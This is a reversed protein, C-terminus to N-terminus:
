FLTPCDGTGYFLPSDREIRGAMRSVDKLPQLMMATLEEGQAAAGAQKRESDATEMGPLPLLRLSV